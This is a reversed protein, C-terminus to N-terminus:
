PSPPPTNPNVANNTKLRNTVVTPVRNVEMVAGNTGSENTATLVPANTSNLNNAQTTKGCGALILAVIALWLLCCTKM